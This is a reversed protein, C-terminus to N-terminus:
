REAKVGTRPETQDDWRNLVLDAVVLRLDSTLSFAYLREVLSHWADETTKIPMGMYETREGFLGQNFRTQHYQVLHSLPAANRNSSIMRMM